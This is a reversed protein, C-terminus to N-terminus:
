NKFLTKSVTYKENHILIYYLGSPWQYTNIEEKKYKLAGKLMTQGLPNIIEYYGGFEEKEIDIIIKESVPNPYIKITTIEDEDTKTPFQQQSFKLRYEGSPNDCPIIQYSYYISDNDVYVEGNPCDDKYLLIVLLTGFEDEYAEIQFTDSLNNVTDKLILGNINHPDAVLNVDSVSEPSIFDWYIGQYRGILGDRYSSQGNLISSLLLASFLFFNKM